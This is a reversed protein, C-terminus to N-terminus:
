RRRDREKDCQHPPPGDRHGQRLIGLGIEVAKCFDGADFAQDTKVAIARGEGIEADNRGIRQHVVEAADPMRSQHDEGGAGGSTGFPDQVIQFANEALEGALPRPPARGQKQHHVMEAPHVRQQRRQSIAADCNAQLLAGRLRDTQRDLLAAGLQQRGRRCEEVHDEGGPRPPM